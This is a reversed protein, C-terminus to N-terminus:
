RRGRRLRSLFAVLSAGLLAGSGDALVDLLDASREPVFYQHFEDTVGFALALLTALWIRGTALTLFAGLVGYAAAHAVKDAGDPFRALFSGATSSSSQLFLVLAWLAALAWGLLNM